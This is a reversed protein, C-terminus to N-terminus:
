PRHRPQAAFRADSAPACHDAGCSLGPDVYITSRRRRRLLHMYSDPKGEEPLPSGSRARVESCVEAEPLSGGQVVLRKFLDGRGCMEQVLCLSASDEFSGLLLVIGPLRCANM